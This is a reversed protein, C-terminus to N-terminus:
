RHQVEYVRVGFRGRPSQKEHGVKWGQAIFINEKGELDPFDIKMSTWFLSRILDLRAAQKRGEEVLPLIEKKFDACNHDDDGSETHLEQHKRGKELLQIEFEHFKRSERNMVVYIRRSIDSAEGLVVADDKPEHLDIADTPVASLDVEQVQTWFDKTSAQETSTTTASETATTMQQRRHSLGFTPM